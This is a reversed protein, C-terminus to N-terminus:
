PEIAKMKVRTPWIESNKPRRVGKKQGEASQRIHRITLGARRIGTRRQFDSTFLTM